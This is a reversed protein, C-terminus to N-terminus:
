RDGASSEELFQIFEQPDRTLGPFTRIIEDDKSVVAYFPLAITGFRESELRQNEAHEEGSGDTYLRVLVFRDLLERVERRPFFTQKWGAATLAPIVPLILSYRSIRSSLWLWDKLLIIWGSNVQLLKLDTGRSNWSRPRAM